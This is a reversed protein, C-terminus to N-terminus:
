AMDVWQPQKEGTFYVKTGEPEELLPALKRNYENRKETQVWDEWKKVNTWTSIVLIEHPDDASILTEGSIYGQRLTVLSRLELLLRYAEEIHKQKFKRTILIRVAM